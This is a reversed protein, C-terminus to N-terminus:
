QGGRRKPWPRDLACVRTAGCAAGDTLRAALSRFLPSSRHLVWIVNSRGGHVPVAELRAPGTRARGISCGNTFPPRPRNPGAPRWEHLRAKIGRRWASLHPATRASSLRFVSADVRGHCRANLLPQCLLCMNERQRGLRGQAGFQEVDILQGFCVRSRAESWSTTVLLLEL